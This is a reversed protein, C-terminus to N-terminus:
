YNKVRWITLFMLKVCSDYRIWIDMHNIIIEYDLKIWYKYKLASKMWIYHM